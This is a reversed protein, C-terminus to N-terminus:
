LERLAYFGVYIILLLEYINVNECYFLQIQLVMFRFYYDTQLQEKLCYVSFISKVPSNNKATM